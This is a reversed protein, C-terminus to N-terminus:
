SAINDCSTFIWCVRAIKRALSATFDWCNGARYAFIFLSLFPIWLRFSSARNSAGFWFMLCFASRYRAMKVDVEVRAHLDIALFIAAPNTARFCFHVRKRSPRSFDDAPIRHSINPIDFLCDVDRADFRRFSCFYLTQFAAPQFFEVGPKFFRSYCADACSPLFFVFSAIQIAGISRSRFSIIFNKIRDNAM